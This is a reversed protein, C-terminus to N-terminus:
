FRSFEPAPKSHYPYFESSIGGRAAKEWEAETPLVLGAWACYPLYFIDFARFPTVAAM